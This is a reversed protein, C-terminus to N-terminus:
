TNGMLTMAIMIAAFCIAAVSFFICEQTSM